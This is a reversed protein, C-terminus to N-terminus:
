TCCSSVWGRLEDLGCLVQLGHAARDSKNIWGTPDYYISPVGQVRALLATSTFPMSIVGVSMNIAKCPSISSPLLSVGDRLVIEKIAKIYRKRTREGVERKRKILMIKGMESLVTQIDNFFRANLDPFEALYESLTSQPFHLSLKHPEVDFVVIANSINELSDAADSFYIPGVISIESAVELDRELQEKHWKDWVLYLPWSSAAWEYKQSEYGKPLMPQESVSYFYLIIRAGKEEAEYTWLPRYVVGSYHFLYEEAVAEKKSLSMAKAKVAEALIFAHWWRGCILEFFARLAAILCWVLFRSTLYPDRFLLYPPTNMKEVVLGLASTSNDTVNHKIAKLNPSRGDWGAYWTCIDYNFQQKNNKPLNSSVLDDFYAYPGSTSHLSQKQMLQKSTKLISFLGASYRILLVFIWGLASFFHNIDIGARQFELRWVKPMPFTVSAGKGISFLIARYMRANAYRDLLLQRVVRESHVIGAGFLYSAAGEAVRPIQVQSLNSKLNRFLGVRNDKCIKHYGRLTARLKNRAYLNPNFRFPSLKMSFAVVQNAKWQADGQSFMGLLAGKVWLFAQLDPFRM